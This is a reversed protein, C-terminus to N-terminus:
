ATHHPTKQHAEHMAIVGGVASIATGVIAIALFIWIM